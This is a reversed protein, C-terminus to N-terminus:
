PARGHPGSHEGLRVGVLRRVHHDLAALDDGVALQIFTRVLERAEEVLAPESEAVVDRDEHVVVRAVELHRPGRLAGAQVEGRDVVVEVGLFDRVDELVAVRLRDHDRRCEALDHM